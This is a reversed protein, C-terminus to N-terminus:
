RSRSKARQERNECPWDRSSSPSETGDHATELPATVVTENFHGVLAVRFRHAQWIQRGTPFSQPATSPGHNFRSQETSDYPREATVRVGYSHRQSPCGPSPGKQYIYREGARVRTHINDTTRQQRDNSSSRNGTTLSRVSIQYLSIHNALYFMSVSFSSRHVAARKEQFLVIRPRRSRRKV